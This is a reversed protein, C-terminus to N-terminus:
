EMPAGCRPCCRQKAQKEQQIKEIFASSIIGTPLAVFGIGVLAIIASLIKGAATIPYVDGYGVTTLTAVAWWLSHGISAFNDPQAEGEVYYMLTSSLILLIFAVFVTLLLEARTEEIVSSITRLSKSYRGLKFIRLLRFLRLIRVIRLDFPFLLPLYFPLIALLDILGLFSFVFALRKRFASVPDHVALDATWVRLLYEITFVIVSFLEFYWFFTGLPLRIEQYSELILAVVNTIILGYIFRIFLPHENLLYYTRRKLASLRNSQDM